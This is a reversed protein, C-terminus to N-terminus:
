HGAEWEGRLANVTNVFTIARDRIEERLERLFQQFMADQQLTWELHAPDNAEPGTAAAQAAPTPRYWPYSQGGAAEDASLPQNAVFPLEFANGGTTQITFSDEQIRLNEVSRWVWRSLDVVRPVAYGDRIFNWEVQVYSLGSANAFVHHMRYFGFRVKPLGNQHHGRHLTPVKQYPNLQFGEPTAVVDPILYYGAAVFESKVRVDEDEDYGLRQLALRYATGRAAELMKDHETPHVAPLTVTEKRNMVGLAWILLAAGGILFLIAAIASSGASLLGILLCGAGAWAAKRAFARLPPEVIPPAGLRFMNARHERNGPDGSQTPIVSVGFRVVTAWGGATGPAPVIERAM